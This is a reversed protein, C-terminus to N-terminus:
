IQMSLYQLVYISGSLVQLFIIFYESNRIMYAAIVYIVVFCLMLVSSFKFLLMVIILAVLTMVKLVIELKKREFLTALTTIYYSKDAKADKFDKFHSATFYFIFIAALYESHTQIFAANGEIVCVGLLFVLVAITSLVINSIIVFRRLRLPSMSYIYSLSLIAIMVFFYSKNVGIACALAFFLVINKFDNYFEKSINFRVLVRTQNSIADIKIDTINNLVTAYVFSLVLALIASYLRLMDYFNFVERTEMAYKTSIFFAFFFIGVYILLRDIRLSDLIMYKCKKDFKFYYLFSLLSVIPLYTYFNFNILSQTPLVSSHVIKYYTSHTLANIFAPLYGYIYIVSYILWSALIAQHIKKTVIYIYTFSMVCVLFIEVRVGNTVKPITRSIDFLYIYKFWFDDFNTEYLIRGSGFIFYDFLPVILIVSFSALVIKATQEIHNKDFINFIYTVSLFVSMWSFTIHLYEVCNDYFTSAPVIFHTHELINEFFNRVVIISLLTLFFSGLSFKATKIQELLHKLQM